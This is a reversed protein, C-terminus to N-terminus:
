YMSWFHMYPKSCGTARIGFLEPAMDARYGRLFKSPHMLAAFSPQHHYRLSISPSGSMAAPGEVLTSASSTKPDDALPVILLHATKRMADFYLRM